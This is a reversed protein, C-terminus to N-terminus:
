ICWISVLPLARSTMSPKSEVNTVETWKWFPYFWPSLNTNKIQYLKQWLNRLVLVLFVICFVTQWYRTETKLFKQCFNYWIFFRGISFDVNGIKTRGSRFSTRSRRPHHAFKPSLFCSDWSSLLSNPFRPRHPRPRGASGQTIIEYEVM